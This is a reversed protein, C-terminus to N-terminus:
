VNVKLTFFLEDVTTKFYDALIKAESLKFDRKGTEKFSYSVDSINLLEAVDEQKLRYLKRYATLNNSQIM